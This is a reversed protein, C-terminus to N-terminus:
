HHGVLGVVTAIHHQIPLHKIFASICNKPRSEHPAPGHDIVRDMLQQEIPQCVEKQADQEADRQIIKRVRELRIPAACDFTAPWKERRM